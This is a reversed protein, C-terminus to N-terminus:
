VPYLVIMKKRGTLPEGIQNSLDFSSSGTAITVIEPKQDVIIKLAMGINPVKQAEDIAILQNDGLYSFIQKFDHSGLLHQTQINDGSDLKYKIKITSLYRKLLTTKGVRRPGYVVLAKGRKLYKDLDDYQRKIHM